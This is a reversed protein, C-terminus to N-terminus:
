NFHLLCRALIHTGGGGASVNEICHGIETMHADLEPVGGLPPAPTEANAYGAETGSTRVWYGRTAATDDGMAVDAIGSIVVWAEDGDAVGADLFVGCCSSGNANCLKVADNNATDAEVLGGEVSVGGTKNTLRVAVGGIPTHKVTTTFSGDMDSILTVGTTDNILGNVYRPNRLEIREVETAVNNIVYAPGSGLFVCNDLTMGAVRNVQFIFNAEAHANVYMGYVNVGDPQSAGAGVRMVLRDAGVLESYGGFFNISLGNIIEYCVDTNNEADCGHFNVNASTVENGIRVGIANSNFSCGGDFNFNHSGNIDIGINCDRVQFNSFQWSHNGTGPTYFGTGSNDTGRISFDRMYCQVAYTRARVGYDATADFRLQFGELRCNSCLEEGIAGGGNSVPGLLIGAGIGTYHLETGEYLKPLLQNTQRAPMGFGQLWINDRNDFDIPTSYSLSGYPLIVRGGDAPLDDIAANVKAGINAGPFLSAYRVPENRLFNIDVTTSVLLDRVDQASVLRDANDPFLAQLVAESRITDVM